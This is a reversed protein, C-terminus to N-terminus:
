QGFYSIGSGILLMNVVRAFHQDSLRKYLTMGVAIGLPVSPISRCEAPAFGDEGASHRLLSITVLAAVYCRQM